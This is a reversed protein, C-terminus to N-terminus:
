KFSIGTEEMKNFNELKPTEYKLLETKISIVSYDRKNMFSQMSLFMNKEDDNLMGQVQKTYLEKYKNLYKIFNNNNFKIQEFNLGGLDFLNKNKLEFNPVEKRAEVVAVVIKENYDIMARITKDSLIEEEALKIDIDIQSRNKVIEYLEEYSQNGELIDFPVHVSGKEDVYFKRGTENGVLFDGELHAPEETIDPIFLPIFAKKNIDFQFYGNEYPSYLKGDPKIELPGGTEPSIFPIPKEDVVVYYIKEYPDFYTGNSQKELKSGVRSIYEASTIKFDKNFKYYKKEYPSYLKGDPKIELPGGTEPSILPIPKEDVVVYYIKEYPDFYTGNSQKELKSGTESKYEKEM